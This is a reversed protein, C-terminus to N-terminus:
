RKDLRGHYFCRKCDHHCIVTRVFMGVWFGVIFTVIATLIIM